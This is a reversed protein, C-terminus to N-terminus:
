LMKVGSWKIVRANKQGSVVRPTDFMNVGSWKIGSANKQRPVVRPTDLM